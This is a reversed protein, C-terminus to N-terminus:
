NRENLVNYLSEYENKPVYIESSSYDTDTNNGDDDGYQTIVQNTIDDNNDTDIDDSSSLTNNDGEM